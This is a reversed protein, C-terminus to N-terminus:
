VFNQFVLAIELFLLCFHDLGVGSHQIVRGTVDPSASMSDKLCVLSAINVKIWHLGSNSKWFRSIKVSVMFSIHLELVFLELMEVLSTQLSICFKM